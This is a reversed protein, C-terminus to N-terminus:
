GRLRLVPGNAIKMRLTKVMIATSFHFRPSARRLQRQRIVSVTIKAVTLLCLAAIREGNIISPFPNALCAIFIQRAISM